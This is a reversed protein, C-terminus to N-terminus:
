IAAIRSHPTEAQGILHRQNPNENALMGFWARNFRLSRKNPIAWAGCSRQRRQAWQVPRRQRGQSAERFDPPLPPNYRAEWMSWRSGTPWIRTTRRKPSGLFLRSVPMRVTLFGPGNM